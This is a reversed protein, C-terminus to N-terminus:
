KNMSEDRSFRFRNLTRSVLEASGAQAAAIAVRKGAEVALSPAGSAEGDAEATSSSQEGEPADEASLFAPDEPQEEAHQRDPRSPRSHGSLILFKILSFFSYLKLM